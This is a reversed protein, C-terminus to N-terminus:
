GAKSNRTITITPSIEFCCLKLFRLSKLASPCSAVGGSVSDEPLWSPAPDLVCSFHVGLTGKRGGCGEAEECGRRMHRFGRRGPYPIPYPIIAFPGSFPLTVSGLSGWSFPSINMPTSKALRTQMVSHTPQTYSRSVECDAQGSIAPHETLPSSRQHENSTPM